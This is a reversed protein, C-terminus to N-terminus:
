PSRIHISKCLTATAGDYVTVDSASSYITADAGQSLTATAGSYVELTAGPDALGTNGPGGVQDDSITKADHWSLSVAARGSEYVQVINNTGQTAEVYGM